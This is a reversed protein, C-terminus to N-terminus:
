HSKKEVSEEEYPILVVLPLEVANRSNVHVFLTNVGFIGRGAVNAGIFYDGRLADPGIAIDTDVEVAEGSFQRPVVPVLLSFAHYIKEPADTKRYRSFVDEASFGNKEFQSMLEWHRPFLRSFPLTEPLFKYTYEWQMREYARSQYTGTYSVRVSWLPFGNKGALGKQQLAELLPTNQTITALWTNIDALDDPMIGLASLSETVDRENHIAQMRATLVVELGNVRLQIDRYSKAAYWGGAHYEPMRFTVDIPLPEPSKSEFTYSFALTGTAVVSIQKGSFAPADRLRILGARLALAQVQAIEMHPEGLYRKYDDAYAQMAFFGCLLICGLVCRTVVNM